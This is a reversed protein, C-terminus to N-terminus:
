APRQSTGGRSCPAPPLPGTKKRAGAGACCGASV